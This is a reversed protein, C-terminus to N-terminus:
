QKNAYLNETLNDYAKEAIYGSWYRKTEKSNKNEVLYDGDNTRYVVAFQNEYLRKLHERRSM